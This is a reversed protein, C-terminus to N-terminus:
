PRPEPAPEAHAARHNDLVRRLAARLFEAPTGDNQVAALAALSLAALEFADIIRADATPVPSPRPAPAPETIRHADASM